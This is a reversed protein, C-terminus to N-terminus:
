RLDNHFWAITSAHPPRDFEKIAAFILGAADLADIHIVDIPMGMADHDLLGLLLATAAAPRRRIGTLFLHLPAPRVGLPKAQIALAFSLRGAYVLAPLRGNILCLHRLEPGLPEASSLKCFSRFM